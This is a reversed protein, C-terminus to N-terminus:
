WFNYICGIFHADLTLWYIWKCGLNNNERNEGQFILVDPTNETKKKM